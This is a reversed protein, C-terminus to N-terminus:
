YRWLIKSRCSPANRGTCVEDAVVAFGRGQEGARAAEIAANLALLNTQEAINGIVDVIKAADNVSTSLQNLSHNCQNVMSLTHETATLVGQAEQQSAELMDTMTQQARVTLESSSQNVQNALEILDTTQGQAQQVVTQTKQTSNSLSGIQIVLDRLSKSVVAM